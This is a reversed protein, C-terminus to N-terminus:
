GVKPVNHHSDSIFILNDCESNLSCECFALNQELSHLIEIQRLRSCLKLQSGVSSLWERLREIWGVSSARCNCGHNVCSVLNWNVVPGCLPLCNGILRVQIDKCQLLFSFYSTVQISGM